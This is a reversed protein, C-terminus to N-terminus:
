KNILTFTSYIGTTIIITNTSYDVYALPQGKTNKALKVSYIVKLFGSNDYILTGRDNFYYTSSPLVTIRKTVTSIAGRNDTVQLQFVYIGLVLGTVNTISSTPSVITSGNPGSVKTWLYSSISGDPDTSASGNLSITSTNLIVLTDSVTISATPPTNIVVTVSSSNTLSGNDTVTLNFVYTGQVMGTVTTIASSPSTITGSSPGSTKSWAYTTITGDPDYSASGDLTTSTTPLNVVQNAGANSVPPTNTANLREVAGIDKSTSQPRTLNFYDSTVSASFGTNDAGNYLTSSTAPTWTITDVLGSLLLTQFVKNSATDITMGSTGHPFSVIYKRGALDFTRDQEPNIIVNNHAFVTPNYVVGSVGNATALSADNNYWDVVFGFYDGNFSARNTHYATNFVVASETFSYAPVRRILSYGNNPSIEFISYSLPWDYINNYLNLNGTYGALGSWKLPVTRAGQGYQHHFVNNYIGGNGYAYIWANHTNRGSGADYALSDFVNDHIQMNQAFISIAGAVASSGIGGTTINKFTNNCIEIDTCMSRTTDTGVVIVFTNKYNNFLCNDIKINYFTSSKTGNFYFSGNKDDILFPPQVNPTANTFSGQTFRIDHCTSMFKIVGEATANVANFGIMKVFSVNTWQGAFGPGVKSGALWRIVISDGILGNINQFSIDAFNATAQIDLTDGHTLAPNFAGGNGNIVPEGSTASCTYRNGGISALSSLILGCGFLIKKFLKM